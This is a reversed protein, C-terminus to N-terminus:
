HIGVKGEADRIEILQISEVSGQNVEEIASNLLEATEEPRKKILRKKTETSLSLPLQQIAMLPLTRLKEVEKWYEEFSM